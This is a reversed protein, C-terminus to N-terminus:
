IILEWLIVFTKDYFSVGVTNRVNMNDNENGCMKGVIM